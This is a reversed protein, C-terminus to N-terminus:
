MSAIGTGYTLSSAPPTPPWGTPSVVATAATSATAAAAAALGVALEVAGQPELGAHGDALLFPLRWRSCRRRSSKTNWAFIRRACLLLFAKFTHLPLM